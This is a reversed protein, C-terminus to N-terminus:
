VNKQEELKKNVRELPLWAEKIGWKQADAFHKEADFLNVKAGLHGFENIYGLRFAADAHKNLPGAAAQYCKIAYSQNKKVAKSGVECLLGIKYQAEAEGKNAAKSLDNVEQKTLKVLIEQDSTLVKTM